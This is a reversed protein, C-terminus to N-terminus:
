RGRRGSPWAPLEKRGLSAYVFATGFGGDVDIRADDLTAGARASLDYLEQKRQSLAVATDKVLAAREAFSLARLAPGGTGRAFGVAAALDVGASTVQAVPQGTVANRVTEGDGQGTRWRGAVYSPLVDTM